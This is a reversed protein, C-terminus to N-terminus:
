ATTGQHETKHWHLQQRQTCLKLITVIMVPIWYVMYISGQITAWILAIGRLKQFQYLGGIFAVTVILSLLTQLPFLLSYHSYFINWLLDPLLAIPLLFQLLFFLLLYIDKALGLSLIQPFYDLYRHYGGEAWRCRQHWLNKWNTVGQEQITTTNVFAIEGGALYLKFTLDLDDTLTDESWGHCKELFDRRVLMGNGRLEAMGNVAIRQAQLYRDCSMEMQQCQTLFNVNFNSIGKSAQVAAINRQAFLPVTLQLFDRPLQADADCVLVIECKTFPLVANLAGSKGGKSLRQHVQLSPFQRKLQQLIQPTADTSGDDVIWIDLPVPYDLAFLSCVVDALVASENRAPVLISVQPFYINERIKIASFPKTLFMRIGQVGLVFTLGLISWQIQLWQLWSVIGWVLLVVLTSKLRRDRIQLNQKM